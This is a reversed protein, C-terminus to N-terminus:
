HAESADRIGVMKEVEAKLERETISPWWYTIIINCLRDFFKGFTEETMRHFAISGPEFCVDTAGVIVEGTNPDRVDRPLVIRRRVGCMIKLAAHLDDESPYDIGEANRYVLRVLAWYKRLFLLNRREKADVEVIRGERRRIRAEGEEDVPVLHGGVCKCFLPNVNEAM